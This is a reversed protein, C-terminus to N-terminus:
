ESSLPSGAELRAKGPAGSAAEAASGWASGVADEPRWSVAAPSPAASPQDDAPPLEAAAPEIRGSGVGRALLWLAGAALAKLVLDLVGGLLDLAVSLTGLGAFLGLLNAVLTVLVGLSVAGAAVRTVVLAHRTAPAVFLCTCVLGVLAFVVTLNMLDGGSAQLADLLAVGSGVQLWIRTGGIVLGVLVVAAVAWTFPERVRKINEIM